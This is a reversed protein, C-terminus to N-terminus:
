PTLLVGGGPLSHAPSYDKSIVTPTYYRTAGYEQSQNEIDATGSPKYGAANRLFRTARPSGLLLLIVALLALGACVPGTIVWFERRSLPNNNFEKINNMGFYQCPNKDSFVWITSLPCCVSTCFSLPLFATTVVTFVSLTRTQQTQEGIINLTAATTAQTQALIDQTERATDATKALIAHVKTMVAITENESKSFGLFQRITLM